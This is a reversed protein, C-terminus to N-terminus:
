TEEEAEIITPAEDIKEALWRVSDDFTDNRGETGHYLIAEFKGMDKLPGHPPVPVLSCSAKMDEWNLFTSNAEASQLVCNDNDKSVMFPCDICSEPMDVGKIYIGM